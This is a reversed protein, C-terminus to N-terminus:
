WRAKRALPAGGAHNAGAFEGATNLHSPVLQMTRMDQHHHWVWNPEKSTAITQGNPDRIPQTRIWDDADADTMGRSVAFQHTSPPFDSSNIGKMPNLTAPFETYPTFDPYGNRYKIANGGTIQSLISGSPPLWDSNGRRKLGTDPDVEDLPQTSPWPTTTDPQYWTGRTASPYPGKSGPVDYGPLNQFAVTGASQVRRPDLTNSGNDNRYVYVKYSWSDYPMTGNKGKLEYQSEKVMAEEIVQDPNRVGNTSSEIRIQGLKIVKYHATNEYPHGFMSFSHQGARLTAAMSPPMDTLYFGARWDSRGNPNSWYGAGGEYLYLEGGEIFTESEDDREEKEEQPVDKEDISEEVIDKSTEELVKEVGNESAEEAAEEGADKTLVVGEKKLLLVTKPERRRVSDKSLTIIKHTKHWAPAPLQTGDPRFKVRTTARLAAKEVARSILRASAKNKLLIRFVVKGGAIAVREAPILGVVEIGVELAVEKLFQDDHFLQKIWEESTAEDADASTTWNWLKIELDYVSRTPKHWNIMAKAPGMTDPADPGSFGVQASTTHPFEDHSSGFDWYFHKDPRSIGPKLQGLPRGDVATEELGIVEQGVLKILSKAHPPLQEWDLKSKTIPDVPLIGLSAALAAFEMAPHIDAPQAIPIVPEPDVVWFYQQPDYVNVRDGYPLRKTASANFDAEGIWFPQIIADDGTGVMRLALRAEADIEKKGPKNERLQITSATSVVIEM